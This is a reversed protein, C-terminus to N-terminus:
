PTWSPVRAAGSDVTMYSGEIRCNKPGVHSRPSHGRHPGSIGQLHPTSLHGSPSTLDRQAPPDVSRRSLRCPPIMITQRRPCRQGHVHCQHEYDLWGRTVNTVRYARMTRLAPGCRTRRRPHDIGIHSALPVHCLCPYRGPSVVGGGGRQMWRNVDCGHVTPRSRCLCRHDVACRVACDLVATLDLASVRPDYAGVGDTQNFVICGLACLTIRTRMCSTTDWRTGSIACRCWADM